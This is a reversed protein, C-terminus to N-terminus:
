RQVIAYYFDVAPMNMMPLSSLPALPPGIEIFTSVFSTPLYGPTVPRLPIVRRLFDAAPSTVTSPLPPCPAGNERPAACIM